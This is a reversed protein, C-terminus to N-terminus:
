SAKAKRRANAALGGAGALFLWVAAPLPVESLTFVRIYDGPTSARFDILIRNLGQLAVSDQNPELGRLNPSLYTVTAASYIDTAVLTALSTAIGVIPGDFDIYGEITTDGNPDYAVYHSTVTQGMTLGGIDLALDATVVFTGEVFAYLNPDQFTNNGVTNDPNSETFPVTLDVFIGGQADAQGGTVAGGVIGAHAPALAMAGITALAATLIRKM